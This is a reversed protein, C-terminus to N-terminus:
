NQGGLAIRARLVHFGDAHEAGLCEIL